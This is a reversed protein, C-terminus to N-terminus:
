ILEEDGDSAILVTFPDGALPEFFEPNVCGIEALRRPYTTEIWADCRPLPLRAARLGGLRKRQTIAADLEREALDAPLIGHICLAFREGGVDTSSFLHPCGSTRCSTPEVVWDCYARCQRCSLEGHRRTSETPEAAM